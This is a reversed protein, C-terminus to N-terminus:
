ENKPKMLLQKLFENEKELSKNKAVLEIVLDNLAQLKKMLENM